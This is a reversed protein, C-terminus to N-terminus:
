ATHAERERAPLLRKLHQITLATAGQKSQLTHLARLGLDGREQDSKLLNTVTSGLDTPAVVRVADTARFLSMIDRFNETHPGVLIPVGHLAPELVNHGGAPVFSGGIIAIDALAYVSALEGISDLLLVSGNLLSGSWQTRLEFKLGSEQLLAAVQSFREPHRPALLMVAGPFEALVQKFADVLLSEEGNLTSGCVLVPGAGSRTLESKLQGLITPASPLAFDFKLNGGVAVRDQEAGIEALRRADEPSQAVFVSVDRLVRGLLKRWRRYGTLSRDSIRANVIAVKAGSESAIRLFNPWFETEAVVVLRPRVAAFYRRMIFAFDLPFYFVDDAGFRKRALEQGTDTTTSILIRHEPFESRLGRVLESVALVEGVSVAHIWISPGSASRLTQPVKGLREWLGKRYKGHRIMELLWFPTAVLLGLALLASYILYM